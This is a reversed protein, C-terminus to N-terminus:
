ITKIFIKMFIPNTYCELIIGMGIGLVIGVTKVFNWRAAPYLYMYTLVIGYGAAYFAGHPFLAAICFVIGLMGMKLVAATCVIGCLFCTWIMAAAACGKRMKTQGLIVLIILPFLRIPLLYLLYEGTDIDTQIYQEMFYSSLVSMSAAYEGPMLNIYVIGALFGAM